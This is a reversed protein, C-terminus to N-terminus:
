SWFEQGTSGYSLEQQTWNRMHSAPMFLVMQLQFVHLPRSRGHLEAHFDMPAKKGTRQQRCRRTMCFLRAPCSSDDEERTNRLQAAPLFKCNCVQLHSAAWKEEELGHQRRMRSLVAKAELEIPNRSFVPCVYGGFGWLSCRSRALSCPPM